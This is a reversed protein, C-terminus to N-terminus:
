MRIANDEESGHFVRCGIVQHKGNQLRSNIVRRKGPMRM